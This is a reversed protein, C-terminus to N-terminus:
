DVIDHARVGLSKVRLSRTRTISSEVKLCVCVRPGDKLLLARM